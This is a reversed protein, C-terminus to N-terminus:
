YLQTVVAKTAAAGDSLCYYDTNSQSPNLPRGAVDIFSIIWSNGAAIKRGGNVVPMTSVPLCWLNATADINQIETVLRGKLVPSDMQTAGPAVSSTSVTIINTTISSVGTQWVLTPVFNGAAYLSSTAGFLLGALIWKRM